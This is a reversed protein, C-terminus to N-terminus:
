NVVDRGDCGAGVNTVIAFRGEHDTGSLRAELPSKGSPALSNLRIM